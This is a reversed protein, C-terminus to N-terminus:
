KVRGVARAGTGPANTLADGLDQRAEDARKRLRAVVEPNAAAVDNSEGPDATLDFLAEGIRAVKYGHRTAIGRIGSEEIAAPSM